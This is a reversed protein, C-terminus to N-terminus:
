CAALRGPRARRAATTRQGFELLLLGSGTPGDTHPVLVFSIVPRYRCTGAPVPYRYRHLASQGPLGPSGTPCGLGSDGPWPTGRGGWSGSDGAYGAIVKHWGRVVTPTPAGLIKGRPFKRFKRTAIALFDMKKTKEHRMAIPKIALRMWM